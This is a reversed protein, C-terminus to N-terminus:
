STLNKTRCSENFSPLMLSELQEIAERRESLNPDAYLLTM